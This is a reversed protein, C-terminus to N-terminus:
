SRKISNMLFEKSSRVLNDLIINSDKFSIDQSIIDIDKEEKIIRNELGVFRLLEIIRANTNKNPLLSIFKKNFMLSFLTAHFSASIVYEANILLNLIDTPGEDKIIYDYNFKKRFGCAHIVKLKYKTKVYDLCHDLLESKDALYVLVYKEKIIRPGILNRYYEKDLLLVPDCVHEINNLGNKKLLDVSSLERVGINKYEKLDPLLNSVEEVTFESKGLSTGFAVKNCDTFTLRFAKDNGCYHYPNWLQDGGTIFVGKKDLFHKELELYSVIRPTLIINQEIFDNFKDFKRKYSKYNLIKGLGTMLKNKGILNYEPRYDIIKVDFNQKKLYEQLALAQFISGFNHISHLTIIYLNM